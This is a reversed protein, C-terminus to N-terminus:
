LTEGYFQHDSDFSPCSAGEFLNITGSGIEHQFGHAGEALGFTLFIAIKINTPIDYTGDIFLNLLM